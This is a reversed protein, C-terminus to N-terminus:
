IRVLRKSFLDQEKVWRLFDERAAEPLLTKGNRGRVIVVDSDRVVKRKNDLYWAVKVKKADDGLEEKLLETANFM